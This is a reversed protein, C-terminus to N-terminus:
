DAVTESALTVQKLASVGWRLLRDRTARAGISSALTTPTSASNLLSESCVLFTAHQAQVGVKTGRATHRATFGTPSSSAPFQCKRNSSRADVVISQSPHHDAM